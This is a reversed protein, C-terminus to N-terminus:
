NIGVGVSCTFVLSDNLAMSEWYKEVPEWKYQQTSLTWPFYLIFWNRASTVWVQAMECVLHLRFRSLWGTALTSISGLNYRSLSCIWVTLSVFYKTINRSLWKFQLLCIFFMCTMFYWIQDPISHLCIIRVKSIGLMSIILFQNCFGIRYCHM